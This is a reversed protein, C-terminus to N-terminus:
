SSPIIGAPCACMSSTVTLSMTGSNLNVDATAYHKGVSLQARKTQVKLNSDDLKMAALGDELANRDNGLILHVQARNSLLIADISKSGCQEDLGKTYAISAERFYFKKRLKLGTKLAENGQHQTGDSSDLRRRESGQRRVLM